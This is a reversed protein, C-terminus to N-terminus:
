GGLREVLNKISDATNFEEISVSELPIEINFREEIRSLSEIVDFSEIFGSSILPTHETIEIDELEVINEKLLRIIEITKKDM